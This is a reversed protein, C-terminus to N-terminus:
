RNHCGELFLFAFGHIWEQIDEVSIRTHLDDGFSLPGIAPNSQDSTFYDRLPQLDFKTWLFAVVVWEM